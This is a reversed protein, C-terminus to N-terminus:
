EGLTWLGAVPADAVAYAVLGVFPGARPAAGADEIPVWAGAHQLAIWLQRPGPPVDRPAAVWLPDSWARDRPLTASARGMGVPAVLVTRAGGGELPEGVAADLVLLTLGAADSTTWALPAALVDLRAVSAAPPCPLGLVAAAFRVEGCGPGPAAPPQAGPFLLDVAGARVRVASTGDVVGLPDDPHMVVPRGSALLAEVVRTPAAAGAAPLEGRIRELFDPYRPRAALVPDVAEMDPRLGHVLLPYDLTTGAPGNMYMLAGAPAAALVAMAADHGALGPALRAVNSLQVLPLGFALAGAVPVRAAIASVGLAAALTLAWVLPLFFVEQDFVWYNAAFTGATAIYLGLVGAAARPRMWALGAVALLTLVGLTVAGGTALLVAEVPHANGSGVSAHYLRGSAHAAVEAVTSLRGWSIAPDAAARLPLLGYLALPAVALGLLGVLDRPRLAARRLAVVVLASPVLLGILLHHSAGLGGLLAAAALGRRVGRAEAAVLARQLALVVGAQFVFHLPYVEIQTAQQWAVPSCAFLLAALVGAVRSGCAAGVEVTLAAAVGAFVASLWPLATGPDVGGFLVVWVHALLTWLPYGTPHPVGWSWAVVALEAQDGVGPAPQALAACLAAVLLGTAISWTAPPLRRLPSM